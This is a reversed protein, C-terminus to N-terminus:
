KTVDLYYKRRSIYDSNAGADLPILKLARYTMSKVRHLLHYLPTSKQFFYAARFLTLRPPRYIHSLRIQNCISQIKRSYGNSAMMNM